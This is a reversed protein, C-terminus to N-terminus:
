EKRPVDYLRISAGLREYPYQGLWDFAGERAGIARRDKEGVTRFTKESIAVWGETRRYPLLSETPPLGQGDTGSGWYGLTVKRAGVERLRDRLRWLDQGWDLDSDVTIREPHRGALANFSALYDPHAALSAALQWTLLGSGIVAARTGRRGRVLRAWGSGASIALFGYVPLVHRLGINMRSPLSVAVIAAACAAPALLRWGGGSPRDRFLVPLGSAFLLLFAIPTKVAILVPFFYWSGTTHFGDLFFSLEGRATRKHLSDIGRFFNVAPIPLELLANAADRVRDHREFFPEAFALIGHPRRHADTWTAVQFRYLAWVLLFAIFLAVVVGGRRRRWERRVVDRSPRKLALIVIGLAAVCAPLFLLASFKGLVALAAAVGLCGAALLTPQELWRVFAYLAALLMCSGAVDVTALGAHALVPPLTTFLLAAAVGAVPGSVHRAWLWVLVTAGAFFPLTGARALALNLEFDNGTRLIAHGERAVDPLDRRPRLGRLYPMAAVAISGLPAYNEQFFTGDSDFLARDAALWRLGSAVHIPEDITQYVASYTLVIRLVGLAVCVALALVSLRPARSPSGGGRPSCPGRHTGPALTM